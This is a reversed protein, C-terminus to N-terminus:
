DPLIRWGFLADADRIRSDASVIESAEGALASALQMADLSRIAVPKLAGYCRRVVESLRQRVTADYSVLKFIGTEIQELFKQFLIEAAGRDVAKSSEKRWFACHLEHRTFTSILPTEGDVALQRFEESDLEKAYHKLLASSDWFRM